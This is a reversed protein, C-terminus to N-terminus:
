VAGSQLLQAKTVRDIASRLRQDKGLMSEDVETPGFLHRMELASMLADGVEEVIDSANTPSGAVKKLLQVSCEAFEECAKIMRAKDGFCDIAPQHSESLSVFAKPLKYAM